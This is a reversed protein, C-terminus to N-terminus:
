FKKTFNVFVTRGFFDYQSGDFPVNRSYQIRQLPTVFPPNQDFLNSVGLRANMGWPLDRSVSVSSYRVSDTTLVYRVPQGFYTKAQNGFHAVNSTDGVYRLVM